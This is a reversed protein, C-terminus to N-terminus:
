AALPLVTSLPPREIVQLGGAGPALRGERELRMMAAALVEDAMPGLAALPKHANQRVDLDVQAMRGIGVERHVDLLLATEVAYGTAWPLGCLLERRAAMEGALPQRVGALEPWFRRLLPRATLETVRGGDQPLVDLGSRFPRRFFAKTFEVGPEFLVPGVTGAAFHPGFHGSDGDLFCVIEGDCVALSRWMADGKGLVPGLERLLSDQQIVTAGAAAAIRATGDASAADVVIVQDIAGRERMGVLTRAIPGIAKACDRTPVVVSVTSRREFILREVPYRSHHFSQM